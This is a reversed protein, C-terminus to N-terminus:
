CTDGGGRKSRETESYAGRSEMERWSEHAPSRFPSALIRSVNDRCLLRVAMHLLMDPLMGEAQM